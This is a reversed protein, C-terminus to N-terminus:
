PEIEASSPAATEQDPAGSVTRPRLFLYSELPQRTEYKDTVVEDVMGIYTGIQMMRRTRSWDNTSGFVVDIHESHLFRLGSHFITAQMAMNGLRPPFDGLECTRGDEFHVIVRGYCSELRDRQAAEVLARTHGPRAADDDAMPAIWRGRARFLGENFAPSGSAVWREHEVESYPGRYPRNFYVVRPDDIEAIAQATEPPAGDGIVVVELNSYDQGLIAPLSVDRLSQHQDYTAVVFSVLPEEETFALEYSPDRRLEYLRRRNAPEEDAIVRLARTARDLEGRAAALDAELKSIRVNLSGVYPGVIRDAIRRLTDRRPTM